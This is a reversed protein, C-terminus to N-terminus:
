LGKRRSWEAILLGDADGKMFQALQPFLRRGMELSALKLAEPGKIGRPLMDKQWEKSDVFQMPIQLLDLVTLTAELARVASLTATFMGPNVLPRELLVLSFVERELLEKLAVVNIRTIHSVEKQYNLCSIVPTKHYSAGYGSCPIIGISGTVGNDIGIYTKEPRKTRYM